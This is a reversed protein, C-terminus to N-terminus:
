LQEGLGAAKYRKFLKIYKNKLKNYDELPVYCKGEAQTFGEPINTSMIRAVQPYTREKRLKAKNPKKM